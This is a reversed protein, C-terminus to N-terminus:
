VYSMCSLLQHTKALICEGDNANKSRKPSLFCAFLSIDSCPCVSFASISPSISSGHHFHLQFHLPYKGQFDDSGNSFMTFSRKSSSKEGRSLFITFSTPEWRIFFSSVPSGPKQHWIRKLNFHNWHRKTWSESHEGRFRPPCSGIQYLGGINKMNKWSASWPEWWFVTIELM